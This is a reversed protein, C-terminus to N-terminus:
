IFILNVVIAALLIAAALAEPRKWWQKSETRREVLSHVLGKLEADPRAETCVSVVSSVILSVFFAIGVTGLGFALESSPHELVAIWGGHIGRQEGVPLMLGHSLLAAAMGAILGAFAGNGTTRKWLAGRYLVAFLPANVMAFVLMMADLMNNFRMTACATGIALLACGVAAWRGVALIRKDSADKALFAQYIDCTFVSSFATLSAAVGSMLCAMLAAIGLGLLGMPLFRELMNPAAMKYDLVAHGDAGMVPKGTAANALAPVLGQGAEAAAPVVTIEHYITGNENRVVETTHPTPLAVAIMGPV